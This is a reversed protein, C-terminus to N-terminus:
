EARSMGGIESTQFTQEWNTGDFQKVTVSEVTGPKICAVTIAFGDPNSRPVYFPTVGCTKCFLHIATKTGFRYEQLNDQGATIKFFQAPVVNHINKKMACVSCNCDWAIIHKPAHFEFQVAECHCAGQHRVREM